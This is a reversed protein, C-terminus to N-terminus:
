GTVPPEPAQPDPLAGSVGDSWMGRPAPRARVLLGGSPGAAAPFTHHATPLATTVM